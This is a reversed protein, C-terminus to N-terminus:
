FWADTVSVRRSLAKASLPAAFITWPQSGRSPLGWLWNSTGSCFYTSARKGILNATGTNFECKWGPGTKIAWPHTSTSPPAKNAQSKPLGRTLSLKVASSSWPGIPCLVFGRAKANSFCPDMLSNGSMCRWADNRDAAISGTFCSGRLTRSVHVAPTGDAHFSSYIHTATPKAAAGSALGLLTAPTVVLAFVRAIRSV